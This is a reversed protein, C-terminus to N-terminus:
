WRLARDLLKMVRVRGEETCLNENPSLGGLIPLPTNLWAEAEDGKVLKVKRYVAERDPLPDTGDIIEITAM